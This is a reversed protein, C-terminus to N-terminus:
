HRSCHAVVSVNLEMGRQPKGHPCVIDENFNLEVEEERKENSEDSQFFFFCFLFGCSSQVSNRELPFSFDKPPFFCPQMEFLLLVRLGLSVKSASKNNEFTKAEPCAPNCGVPWTPTSQHARLM